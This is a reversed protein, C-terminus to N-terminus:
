YGIEIFSDADNFSFGGFTSNLEFESGIAQVEEVLANFSKGYYTIKEPQVNSTEQGIIVRVRPTNEQIFSVENQSHEIVGDKGHASNRYAMIVIYANQVTNLKNLLHYFTHKDEGRWPIKKVNENEGDFWYPISFGLQLSFNQPSSTQLDGFVRAIEDVTDLFEALIKEQNKVSFAEQNYSEIDFQIGRFPTDQNVVNFGAVYDIAIKNLYRHSANGWKADGVLAHVAVDYKKAIGIYQKAEFNFEEIKKQKEESESIEYFDVYDGINLYITDVGKVALSQIMSEPDDRRVSKWDWVAYSYKEPLKKEEIPHNSLDVVDLPTTPDIFYRYSVIAFAGILFILAFLINKM